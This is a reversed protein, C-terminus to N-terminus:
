YEAPIDVGQDDLEARAAEGLRQLVVELLRLTDDDLRGLLRHAADWGSDVIEDLAKRGAPALTLRRIRRDRPDDLRTVYDHAVLRDVIGSTTALSVGLGRTLEQSTLRDRRSILMLVRLQQMTLNVSFIPNTRDYTLLDRMRQEARLVRRLLLERESGV